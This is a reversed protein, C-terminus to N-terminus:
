GGLASRILAEPDRRPTWDLERQIRESSWPNGGRWYRVATGLSGPSRPRGVLGALSDGVLAAGRALPFPVSIIRVRRGLGNAMLRVLETATLAVDNAVNYDRGAAAPSRLARLVADAVSEAFVLALPLRGGDFVPVWGRRVLRVIGPLFLRDGPGTVVCPRLIVADLGRARAAAVEAEALRKSRAYFEDARLPQFPYDETIGSEDQWRRGYVAVSSLHVLRVGQRAACDAALRTGRVNVSHYREWDRPGRIIAATHVIGGCRLGSWTAPDEVPGLTVEAGRGTFPAAQAPDRLLVRVPVGATRLATFVQQGLLGTAGTLLIPTDASPTRM